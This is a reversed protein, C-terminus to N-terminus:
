SESKSVLDLDGFRTNILQCWALKYHHLTQFVERLCHRHFLWRYPKWWILFMDIIERPYTGFNFITTYIFQKINLLGVFNGIFQILVYCNLVATVKFTLTVSLTSFLYFEIHLVLMCLKVKIVNITDSFIRINFNEVFGSMQSVM